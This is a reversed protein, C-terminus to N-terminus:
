NSPVDGQAAMDTTSSDEASSTEESSAVIQSDGVLRDAVEGPDSDLERLDRLTPLEELSGLGFLKLFDETTGFLAPQGVTEQHGIIRVLNRELLTKITPTADVGRIREIDSRTIPQRYAIIALTELAAHTLRRPKDEKLPQLLSAFKAKTRFQVGGQVSVMEIGFSEEKYKEKLASIAKKITELDFTTIEAIRAVSIPEGNTFVIAEIASSVEDTLEIEEKELDSVEM